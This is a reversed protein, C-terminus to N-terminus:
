LQNSIFLRYNLSLTSIFLKLLIYIKLLWEIILKKLFIQFFNLSM